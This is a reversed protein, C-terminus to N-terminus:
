LSRKAEISLPVAWPTKSKESTGSFLVSASVGVLVASNMRFKDSREGGRGLSGKLQSM